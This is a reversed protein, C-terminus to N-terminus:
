HFLEREQELVDEQNALVDCLRNVSQESVVSGYASDTAYGVRREMKPPGCKLSFWLEVYFYRKYPLYM